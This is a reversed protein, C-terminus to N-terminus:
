CHSDIFKPYNCKVPKMCDLFQTHKGAKVLGEAIQDKLAQMRQTLGNCLVKVRSGEIRVLEIAAQVKKRSESDWQSEAAKWLAILRTVRADMAHIAKLNQRENLISDALAPGDEKSCGAIRALKEALNRYSAIIEQLESLINNM